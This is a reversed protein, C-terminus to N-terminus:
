SKFVLSPGLRCIYSTSFVEIYVEVGSVVIVTNCDEITMQM